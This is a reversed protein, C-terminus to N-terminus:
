SKEQINESTILIAIFVNTTIAYYIEWRTTRTDTIHRDM